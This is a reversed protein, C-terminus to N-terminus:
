KGDKQNSAVDGARVCRGSPPDMHDLHAVVEGARVIVAGIPVDGGKAATEAEDLALRMWAFDKQARSTVVTVSCEPSRVSIQQSGSVQNISLLAGADFRANM